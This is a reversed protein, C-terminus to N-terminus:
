DTTRACRCVSAFFRIKKWVEFGFIVANNKKSPERWVSIAPDCSFIAPTQKLEKIALEVDKDLLFFVEIEHDDQIMLKDSLYTFGRVLKSGFEVMQPSTATYKQYEVGGIKIVGNLEGSPLRMDTTQLDKLIRNRKGLRALQESKTTAREPTVSRYVSDALEIVNPDKTDMNFVLVDRLDESSSFKSNCTECSPVIWKEFNQPTTAPYLSRAFVHDRTLTDSLKRCYVCRSPPPKKAM